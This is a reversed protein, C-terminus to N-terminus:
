YCEDTIDIRVQRFASVEIGSSKLADVLAEVDVETKLEDEFGDYAKGFGRRYADARQKSEASMTPNRHIEVLTLKVHDFYLSLRFGM